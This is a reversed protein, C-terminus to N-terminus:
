NHSVELHLIVQQDMIQVRINTIGVSRAEIQGYLDVEAIEGHDSIWKKPIASYKGLDTGTGEPSLMLQPRVKEGVRLHLRLRGNKVREHILYISQRYPIFQYEM